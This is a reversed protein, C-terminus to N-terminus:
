KVQVCSDNKLKKVMREIGKKKGANVRTWSGKRKGMRKRRELRAVGREMRREGPKKRPRGM